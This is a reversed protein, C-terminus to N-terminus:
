RTSDLVLDLLFRTKDALFLPINLLDNDLSLNKLSYRIRIPPNFKENYVSLSKSRINTDAKVECPIIFNKYQILFDVEANGRSVWYRPPVDFQAILHQLIFNETLSGKFETFIRNKELFVSPDLHSMSRLLGTDVLYLKFSSLDDYGSLPLHPKVCRNVKQVLGAQVLWLLAEEYERARAGTKVARYFFKKNEKALQSPISNWLYGIRAIDKVPVHKSFDLQYSKLINQQVNQTKQPNLTELLTSAAKPMGGSIFYNRLKEILRNFFIDPVPAIGDMRDLYTALSPEAQSLFESFRLPHVQLFEVKGVPFSREKGLTVGLLSGAAAVHYQPANECFYKLSNLAAGCEQIEDFVILTENPRITKGRVLSLNEILRDVEKTQEFLQSLDPQRDFNFYATDEFESEGLYRLLWTKGVQRAGQLILPKKRPNRSWAVIEPILSRQFNTPKEM